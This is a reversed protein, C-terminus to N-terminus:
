IEVISLKFFHFCTLFNMLPSEKEEHRLYGIYEFEITYRLKSFALLHELISLM